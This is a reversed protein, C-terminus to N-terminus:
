KSGGNVQITVGPAIAGLDGLKERIEDASRTTRAALTALGRSVRREELFLRESALRAQLDTKVKQYQAFDKLGSLEFHIEEEGAAEAPLAQAIATERAGLNTFAETILKSAAREFSDNELLELTGGQEVGGPFAMALKVFFRKEDAHASDIDEPFAPRWQLLFYSPVGKSATLTKVRHEVGKPATVEGTEAPTLWAPKFGRRALQESAMKKLAPLSAACKECSPDTSVAALIKPDALGLTKPGYFALFNRIAPLDIDIALGSGTAGFNKVFRQANPVVDENFIQKQYPELEGLRRQSEQIATKLRTSQFESGTDNTAARAGPSAVAALLLILSFRTFRM